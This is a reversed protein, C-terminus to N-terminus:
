VNTTNTNTNTNTTAVPQVAKEAEMKAAIKKAKNSKYVIVGVITAIALFGIGGIIMSVKSLAQDAKAIGIVSKEFNNM